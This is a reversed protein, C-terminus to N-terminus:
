GTVFDAFNTTMDQFTGATGTKLAPVPQLSSMRIQQWTVRPSQMMTQQLSMGHLGGTVNVNVTRSGPRTEGAAITGFPISAIMVTVAISSDGVQIISTKTEIDTYDPGTATLRIDYTGAAAFEYPAPDESKESSWGTLM